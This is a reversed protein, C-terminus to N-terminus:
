EGDVIQAYARLYEDTSIVHGFWLATIQNLREVM